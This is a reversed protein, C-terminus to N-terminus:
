PAEEGLNPAPPPGPAVPIQLECLDAGEKDNFYFTTDLYCVDIVDGTITLGQEAIWDILRELYKLDYPMGYKYMCAYQGGPVDITNAIPADKFPLTFFVGAGRFVEATGLGARRILTGFEGSPLIGSQFLTNWSKMCTCHLEERCIENTFPTLVMRREPLEKLMPKDISEKFYEAYQFRNLRQQISFHTKTLREIEGAVWEKHHELLAIATNLNRQEMHEKIEELKVGISKLFLIERLLPIQRASYYRYNNAEDIYLPKFIAVKDYYILTQRSINHMEAMESISFVEKM